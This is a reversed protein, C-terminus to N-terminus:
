ILCKLACKVAGMGEGNQVEAMNPRKSALSADQLGTLAQHAAWADSAAAAPSLM